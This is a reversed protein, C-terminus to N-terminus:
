HPQRPGNMDQLEQHQSQVLSATVTASDADRAKLDKLMRRIDFSGKISVYITVTSYWLVCFWIALFWFSHGYTM